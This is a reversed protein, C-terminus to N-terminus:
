DLYTISYYFSGNSGATTTGTITITSGVQTVGLTLGTSSNETFDDTYNLTPNAVVVFRGYRKVTGRVFTYDVKFAQSEGTQVTFLAANTVGGGLDTVLGANRKYNGVFMRAGNDTAISQTENLSIRPYTLAEIDDRLFMDGISVNNDAEIRIISTPNTTFTTSGVTISGGEAVNDLFINYGTMNYSCSDIIIGEQFINQFENHLVAFGNPGGATSDFPPAGLYVGQYLIDFRSNTVRVGQVPEGTAIGYTLGAFQCQDFTVNNTKISATSNFRVGAIDLRAAPTKIDDYVLPGLFSVNNFAINTATDVLFIDTGQQSEFGIGSIEIDTPPTASNSGINVGYEQNSDATRAVFANLTSIDSSEDLRIISSLAGEGYLKAYPPILISENILYVGAPFFLSRRVQPNSQRCYLQFLARNIAATDDTVGDGVAGFDTVVAYSDLRSQISQSVPNSPTSGTQVTYGAAQGKYTYATQFELINSFETLVETNGIVPAGEQLTGNGIFLRREDIAWGLEAGALQPLDQTLGKRQQIRSIQVIAM